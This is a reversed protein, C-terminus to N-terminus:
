QSKELSKCDAFAFIGIRNLGGDIKLVRWRPCRKFAYDCIETAHEKVVVMM